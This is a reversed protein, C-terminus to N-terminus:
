TNETIKIVLGLKNLVASNRLFNDKRMEEM